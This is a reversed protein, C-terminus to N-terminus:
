RQEGAAALGDRAERRLAAVDEMSVVDAAPPAWEREHKMLLLGARNVRAMRKARIPAIIQEIEAITPFFRCKRLIQDFAAFLDPLAHGSLARWYIELRADEGVESAQPMVMVLSLEGIMNEFEDETPAPPTCAAIYERLYAASKPGIVPMDPLMIRQDLLADLKEPLSPEQWQRVFQDAAPSIAIATQATMADELNM